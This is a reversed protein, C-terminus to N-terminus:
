DWWWVNPLDPKPKAAARERAARWLRGEDRHPRRTQESQLGRGRERRRSDVLRERDSSQHGDRRNESRGFLAVHYRNPDGFYTLHWDVRDALKESRILAGVLALDFMNQLDAYIPYRVALDSFHMTFNRAFESNLQDSNGTHVRQGTATLLENESLVKVGQGSFEFGDHDHTAELAGYNLTFWWRLVDLPPAAGGKPVRIMSLYNPVGLGGDELGVGVLKMRYDAEVLVRAARTGPDLGYVSINQRGMHDRLKKLWGDREGQRLPRKNSEAVFAKTGALAEATPTIACGMKADSSSLMHRLIVVLDDLQVVPRGSEKGVLRGDDNYQWDGAPGAIVLDHTKPYILVYKIRQLGALVRMEETPKEGLAARRQM